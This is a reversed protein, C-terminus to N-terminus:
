LKNIFDDWDKPTGKRKFVKEYLRKRVSSVSNPSLGVAIAINKASFHLRILLSIKLENESISTLTYLRRIVDPMFCDFEIYLRKWQNANFTKGEKIKKSIEACINSKLMMEETDYKLKYESKAKSLLNGVHENERELEHMEKSSDIKLQAIQRNQEALKKECEDIYEQSKRYNDTYIENLLTERRKAQTNRHRFLLCTAVVFVLILIILLSLITIVAHSYKKSSQLQTIEKEKHKYNYISNMKVVAESQTLKEVSDACLAYNDMCIIASDVHGQRSEIKTLYKWASMKAYIEGSDIVKHCYVKASDYMDLKMYIRCMKSNISSEDKNLHHRLPITMYDLAKAAENIDVYLLALHADIYSIYMVDKTQIACKKSEEYFVLASDYKHLDLYSNGVAAYSYVASHVNNSLIDCELQRKATELEYEYLGQLMYLFSEQGYILSKLRVKSRTSDDGICDLAQRYYDIAQPADGLDGYVRGGYYYATMCNTDSPHDKYYRLVESIASDSTHYLYAKDRAKICLLKYYYRYEDSCSDLYSGISDLYSIASDPETEALMNAKSLMMGARTDTSCSTVGTLICTLILACVVYPLFHLRDSKM